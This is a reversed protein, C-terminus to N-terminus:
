DIKDKINDIIKDMYIRRFTEFDQTKNTNNEWYIHLTDFLKDEVQKKNNFYTDTKKHCKKCLTQGNDINYLQEINNSLKYERYLHSFKILHHAEIDGNSKKGCEQCIYNDREFVSRRWEKYRDNTRLLYVEKHEIGKWNPNNEKKYTGNRIVNKRRKEIEEKTPKRGKKFLIGNGPPPKLGLKIVKKRIREKTEPRHRMCKHSCFKRGSRYEAKKVIFKKNCTQCSMEVISIKSKYKGM